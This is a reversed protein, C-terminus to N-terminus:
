SYSAGPTRTTHNATAAAAAMAMASPVITRGAITAHNLGTRGARGTGM